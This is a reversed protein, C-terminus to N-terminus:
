PRSARLAARAAIPHPRRLRAIMTARRDARYLPPRVRGVYLARGCCARGRPVRRAARDVRRAQRCNRGPQDSREGRLPADARADVRFRRLLRQDPAAPREGDSGDRRQRLTRVAVADRVSRRRRFYRQYRPRRGAFHVRGAVGLRHCLRRFKLATRDEGVVVLWADRAVRPWARILFELGKRAFGNGAFVVLPGADTVGLRRRVSARASDDVAPRFRDADVGNYITVVREPALAFERRLDDRVLNSVAVTRRLTPAAFARREVAMQARHYASLWMARGAVPGRWRQAARVYSIHAGGGSRMVDAGIARAFSVVLEAGERRAQAPAASAFRWVRLARGLARTPVARVTWSPAAARVEDAYIVLEHGAERLYQATVILDRETGGGSPDFRRAILAIRM